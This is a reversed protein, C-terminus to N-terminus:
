ALPSRPPRDPGDSAFADITVVVEAFAVPASAPEHIRPMASPLAAGACCSACASCTYQSLDHIKGSQAKAQAMTHDAPSARDVSDAM